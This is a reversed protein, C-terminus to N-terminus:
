YVADYDMRFEVRAFKGPLVEVPAINNKSDFLNSYFLSDKKVFLSYKGAPLHVKFYGKNNTEVKKIFRTAISSYFSSGTKTVVQSINTLEYIYLTGKIGAPPAPKIDPSPMQNGSVKYLYGEMGQRKFWVTNFASLGFIILIFFLILNLKM